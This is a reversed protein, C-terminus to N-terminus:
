RSAATTSSRRRCRRSSRRTPRSSASRTGIRRQARARMACYTRRARLAPSASRMSQAIPLLVAHILFLFAVPVMADQLPTEQWAYVSPVDINGGWMPHFAEGVVFGVTALMAVRSHKIEVERLFKVRGESQGQSFGLPDFFGLPATVGPMARIDFTSQMVPSAAARSVVPAAAFANGAYSLPM